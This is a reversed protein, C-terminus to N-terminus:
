HLQWHLQRDIFNCVIWHIQLHNLLTAFLEIFDSVIWHLQLCNLSVFNFEVSDWLNLSARHLIWYHIWLIIWHVLMSVTFRNCERYDRDKANFKIGNFKSVFYMGYYKPCTSFKMMGCNRCEAVIGGWSEIKTKCSTCGKYNTCWAIIIKTFVRTLPDCNDNQMEIEIVDEITEIQCDVGISLYKMGKFQQVNVDKLQYCKGELLSDVDTEWAVLRYCASCDWFLCDQKLLEKGLQTWIKAPPEVNIVKINTTVKAMDAVSKIKSMQIARNAPFSSRSHSIQTALECNQFSQQPIHACKTEEAREASQLEDTQHGEPRRAIYGYVSTVFAIVKISKHYSPM